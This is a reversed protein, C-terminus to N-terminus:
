SRHHSPCPWMALKRTKTHLHARGASRTRTFVSLVHPRFFRSLSLTHRRVSVACSRHSKFLSLALLLFLALLSFRCMHVCMKVSVQTIRTHSVRSEWTKTGVNGAVNWHEIVSRTIRGCLCQTGTEELVRPLM